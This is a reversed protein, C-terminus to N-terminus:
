RSAITLNQSEVVNGNILIHVTWQGEKLDGQVDLSATYTFYISPDLNQPTEFSASTTDHTNGDPDVWQCSFTYAEQAALGYWRSVLFIRNDKGKTFVSRVSGPSDTVAQTDKQEFFKQGLQEIVWASPQSNQISACLATQHQYPTSAFTQTSAVLLGLGIVIAAFKKM